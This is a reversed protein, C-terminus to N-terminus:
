RRAKKGKSAPAAAAGESAPATGEGEGAGNAGEAPSEAGQVAGEGDASGEAKPTKTAKAAAAKSAQEKRDLKVPTFAYGEPFQFVYDPEQSLHGPVYFSAGNYEFYTYKIDRFTTQAASVMQGNVSLDFRPAKLPMPYKIAKLPGVDPASLTLVAAVRKPPTPKTATAEQSVTEETMIM